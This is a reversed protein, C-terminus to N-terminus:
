APGIWRRARARATRQSSGSDPERHRFTAVLTQPCAGARVCMRGGCVSSCACVYVSMCVSVCVCVCVCVGARASVCVQGHIGDLRNQHPSGRVPLGRIPARAAGAEGSQACEAGRGDTVAACAPMCARQLRLRGSLQFSPPPIAPGRPPFRSWQRATSTTSATSPCGGGATVGRAATVRHPAPTNPVKQFRHRSASKRPEIACRDVIAVDRRRRVEQAESM